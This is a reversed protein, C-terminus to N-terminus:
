EMAAAMDAMPKEMINLMSFRNSQTTAMPPIIATHVRLKTLRPGLLLLMPRSMPSVIPESMPESRMLIIHTFPVCTNWVGWWQRAMGLTIGMTGPTNIYRKRNAKICICPMTPSTVSATCLPTLADITVIHMARPTAM